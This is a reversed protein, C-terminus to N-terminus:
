GEVQGHHTDTFHRAAQFFDEDAQEIVEGELAEHLILDLRRQAIGRKDHRGHRDGDDDDVHEHDRGEGLHELAEAGFQRQHRPHQDAKRIEHQSTAPV